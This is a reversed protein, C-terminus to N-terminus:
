VSVKHPPAKPHFRFNNGLDVPVVRYRKGISDLWKGQRQFAEWACNADAFITLNPHGCKRLLPVILNQLFFYDINYTLIFIHTCNDEKGILSLIDKKM